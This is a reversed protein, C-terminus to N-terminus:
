DSKTKAPKAKPKPKSDAKPKPAPKSKPEAKPKSDAKPKSTAKPKAKAKEPETVKKPEKATTAKAKPAAKVPKAVVKPKSDTQESTALLHNMETQFHRKLNFETPYPHTISLREAELNQLYHRKLSSDEPITSIVSSTSTVASSTQHRDARHRPNERASPYPRVVPEDAELEQNQGGQEDAKMIQRIVFFGAIAGVIIVEFGM